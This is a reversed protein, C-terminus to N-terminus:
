IPTLKIVPIVREDGIRKEYEDMLPYVAGMLQWLRSREDELVKHATARFRDAGVQVIVGPDEELNLYWAPHTPRGGQSAVVVFSEGDRGYVLPTTRLKGSKRGKTTLLLCPYTGPAALRDWLHGDEGGSSLYRQVHEKVKASQPM